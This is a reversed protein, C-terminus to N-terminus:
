VLTSYFHMVFTCHSASSETHCSVIRSSSKKCWCSDQSNRKIPLLNVDRGNEPPPLYNNNNLSTLDCNLEEAFQFSFQKQQNNWSATFIDNVSVINENTLGSLTAIHIAIQELHYNVILNLTLDQTKDTTNEYEKKSYEKNNEDDQTEKRYGYKRTYPESSRRFPTKARKQLPMSMRRLSLSDDGMQPAAFCSAMADRVKRLVKKSSSKRNRHKRGGLSLHSKTKISKELQQIIETRDKISLTQVVM